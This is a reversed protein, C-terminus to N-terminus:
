LEGRLAQKDSQLGLHSDDHEWELEPHSHDTTQILLMFLFMSACADEPLFPKADLRESNSGWDPEWSHCAIVRHSLITEEVYSCICLSTRQLSWSHQLLLRIKCIKSFFFFHSFLTKSFSKLLAFFVKIDNECTLLSDVDTHCFIQAGSLLLGTLRQAHNAHVHCIGQLIGAKPRQDDTLESFTELLHFVFFATQSLQEQCYPPFYSPAKHM